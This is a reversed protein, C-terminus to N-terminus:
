DEVLPLLVGTFASAGDLVAHSVAFPILRRLRLYLVTTFVTNPIPSLLRFAMFRPDFTLPMFSHQLSWAFAVLAVAVTTSGALVQLRPLLYGNYTMQETVGWIIPFVLVAYLAAPMPLAGFISPAGLAGYLIWNGAYIGGLIFALNAPVLVLGLLVDRVLHAREFGILDLLGLGERHTLRWLLLLCGADILTGYVPLWPAAALWPTPSARRAFAAAVLAQAGVACASRAFLMAAPGGWTLVGAGRRRVLSEYSNRASGSRRDLVSSGNRRTTM